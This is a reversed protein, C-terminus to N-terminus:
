ILCFSKDIVCRAINVERICKHRWDWEDIKYCSFYSRKAFAVQTICDIKLNSKGEGTISNCLSIDKEKGAFYIICNEKTWNLLTCDKLSGSSMIKALQVNELCNKFEFDDSFASACEESSKYPYNRLDQYKPGTTPQPQYGEIPLCGAYNPICTINDTKINLDL